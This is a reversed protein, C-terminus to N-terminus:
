QAEPSFTKRQSERSFDSSLVKEYVLARSDLNAVLYGGGNKELQHMARFGHSIARRWLWGPLLEVELGITAAKAVEIIEGDVNKESLFGMRRKALKSLVAALGEETFIARAGDEVEDTIANSKRKIRLLSRLNPSWGLVALFGLHIADHFRYADSDHSNDTLRDGINAGTKYGTLRDNKDRTPGDPFNNPDVSARIMNAAVTGDPLVAERFEVVLRRPFRERPPHREDFVPLDDMYADESLSAYRDHTRQLNAKAIEELDLACATAVAATYWLLDGLEEQLFERNAALDIGDRLYKKYVNLISGTESALGLMPEVAAQPGGLRLQSTDLAARQFERLDVLDSGEV